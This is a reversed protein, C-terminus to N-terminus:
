LNLQDRLSAGATADTSAIFFIKEDVRDIFVYTTGTSYLLGGGSDEPSGAHMGDRIHDLLGNTLDEADEITEGEYVWAFATDDGNLFVRYRDNGWGAAAQTLRGPQLSDLLVMRIGWEGLSREDFLDWGPLTVTLPALDSPQESRMFKEPHLVQESSVPLDLYAEDVGKLGGEQVLFQTFLLGYEYPFTLDQQIWTPARLLTTQDISLSELVAKAADAPSMSELYLFQQYTADGEVLALVGSADDGTGNDTRDEYVDNFDFHQDTLAHVLEHAITIEQLPTIGDLSVPVVLEDADPDYFGAVQETYLDILLQYLDTSGDLMGLLEFMAQDGAVEVPDLDEEMTTRVRASFDTSDLITVTPIELFPLGRSEEVDLMLVGIEARMAEAIDSPISPSSEGPISGTPISTLPAATTTTALTTTAPAGTTTTNGGGSSDCAAVLLVVSAALVARLVRKSPKPMTQM